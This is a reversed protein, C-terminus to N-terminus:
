VLVSKLKLLLTRETGFPLPSAYSKITTAFEELDMKEGIILVHALRIMPSTIGPMEMTATIKGFQEGNVSM